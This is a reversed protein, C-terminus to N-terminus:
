KTYLHYYTLLFVFIFFISYFDKKSYIVKLNPASKHVLSTNVACLALLLYFIDIEMTIFLTAINFGILSVLLARSTAVLDSKSNSLLLNTYSYWLGKFAFYVIALWVFIGIIGTEALNQMFNSHALKHRSNSLIFTGKGIGLIPKEKFSDMANGWLRTRENANEEQTNMQSVRTPSCFVIMIGILVCSCVIAFKKSKLRFMTFLALVVLLTLFGGRSNTTYIGIILVISLIFNVLKFIVSFSGFTFELAFPLSINFLLSMVNAGNWLGIWKTRVGEGSLYFGQAALGVGGSFFQQIAQFAIFASLIVTWFLISKLNKVSRVLTIFMYFICTKKLFLTFQEFGISINLNVLNSVFVIVLFFILYKGLLDKPLNQKTESQKLVLGIILAPIILMYDVPWNLFFPIWDQPRVYLNILYLYLLIM